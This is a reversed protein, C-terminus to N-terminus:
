SEILDCVNGYWANRQKGKEAWLLFGMMPDFLFLDQNPLQFFGSLDAPYCADVMKRSLVSLGYDSANGPIGFRDLLKRTFQQSGGLSLPNFPEVTTRLQAPQAGLQNYVSRLELLRRARIQEASPLEDFSVESDALPRELWEKLWDQEMSHQLM